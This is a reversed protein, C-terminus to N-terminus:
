PLVGRVKVFQGPRLAHDPNPFDVTIQMATSSLTTISDLRGKAPYTTGDDLTLVFAQQALVPTQPISFVARIPDITEVTALEDHANIWDGAGHLARGVVGDAAAVVAVLGLDSKGPVIPGPHASHPDLYFVVAGSAVVTNEPCVQKVLYGNSAAVVPTEASGQLEAVTEPLLATEPKSQTVANTAPTSAQQLLPPPPSSKEGRKACGCLLAVVALMVVGRSRMRKM